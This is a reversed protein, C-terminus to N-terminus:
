HKMLLLFTPWHKENVCSTVFEHKARTSNRIKEFIQKHLLFTCIVIFQQGEYIHFDFGCLGFNNHLSSLEDNKKREFHL